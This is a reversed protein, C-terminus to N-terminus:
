GAGNDSDTPVGESEILRRLEGAVTHEKWLRLQARPLFKLERGFDGPRKLSLVILKQKFQEVEAVEKVEFLPITIEKRYNSVLLNPGDLSVVKLPIYATFCWWAILGVCGLAVLAPGWAFSERGLLPMVFFPTIFLAAAVVFSVAPIVFKALFTQASSIKRRMFTAPERVATM